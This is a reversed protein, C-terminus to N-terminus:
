IHKNEFQQMFISSGLWYSDKGVTWFGNIRKATIFTTFWSVMEASPDSGANVMAHFSIGNIEQITIIVNSISPKFHNPMISDNTGKWMCEFTKCPEEPRKKYISCGSNLNVFKCPKGPFMEEGNINATLWGECCKTCEGCNRQNKNKISIAIKTM